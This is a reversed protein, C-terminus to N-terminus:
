GRQRKGRDQYLTTSKAIVRGDLITNVTVEIPRTMAAGSTLPQVVARGQNMTILEPGAEGVIASGKSLIGGNALMPIHGIEGMSSIGIAKNIVNVQRIMWNIGDILKNIMTIIGNIPKKFADLIGRAINSLTNKVGNWIQSWRQTFPGQIYNLIDNFIPKISEFISKLSGVFKKFAAPIEVTFTRELQDPFDNVVWDGFKKFYEKVPDIFKDKIGRGIQIFTEKIGRGIQKLKEGLRSLLDKIKDFNLAIIAVLAVIAAIILVYPNSILSTIATGINTILTPINAILTSIKSVASALPSIIAIISMITMIMQIQAPNLEGIDDLIGGILNLVNELVPTLAELAKAGAQMIRAQSQAKLKDIADNTKNLSDLTDQELILGMQKAEDGYQRLAYGGDDIIGALSDAGKGFIKMALSDRETENKVRSLAQLTDYFVSNVDRLSGDANRTRVGLSLLEESDSAIAKKLKSAAGTIDSMSVDVLESAYQFKQLEETTFGTQKAMTNLEDANQAAKYAMGGIAILGGAAVGSLYKTKDAVAQAGKAVQEATQGIASMSKETKDAATKLKEVESTTSVIERQLAMYQESNKDVGNADMNAQAKKLTDLKKSTNNIQDGLLKQKQALLETNKPDLKLLREVDKLQKQTNNIEGNVDKLAKDLGSADGGLEITIGRIKESM